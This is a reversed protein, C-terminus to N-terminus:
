KKGLILIIFSGIKLLALLICVQSVGLTPLLVVGGIIGGLWGGFLDLAYILGATRSVNSSHQLYIKNFLPFEAGTLLGGIFSLSLFVIKVFIENEQYNLITYLMGILFFSFLIIIFEIKLLLSFVNKIKDLFYTTLTAGIAVGMMLFVILLTIWHYVYGYIAQFTFILILNFIISLLGTSFVAFPLSHKRFVSFILFIFFMITLVSYINIKLLLDFLGRLHPSFLANWYSLSHLVARPYFDYNLQVKEKGPLISKTFWNKWRKDMKYELHYPTILSININREKLRESLTKATAPLPSSSALFINVEGPIVEVYSFVNEMTKLICINLKKLEEPLYILSGPLTIVLIGDEKLVKKAKQFFELTFFRNIQLNSPNNLGVLIVDYRSKTNQIFNRGDQYKINLYPVNLEKETLPTPFKKVVRLFEPDLEAYDIKKVSPHKIVENIVGGAGGSLIAIQRPRPHSLLPLHVFEEVQVIDPYPTTLTPVGDYFFTYQDQLKAVTINGYISNQYSMIEYGKFQKKISMLHLKNGAGSLILYGCGVFFIISFGLLYNRKQNFFWVLFICSLSSLFGVLLFIDFSNFYFLLLYAFIIGGIITGITEYIYVKGIFTASSPFFESYIKASFTFLAGHFIAPLFLVLFSSYFISLFDVGEGPFIGLIYKLTRVLYVAGGFSLSFLLIFVVMLFIKQQVREIRKGLFFSGIGELMLWNSIIVGLSLENGQFVVLLERLLLIQAIIGGIGTTIIAFIISSKAKSKLM